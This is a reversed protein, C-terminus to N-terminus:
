CLCRSDIAHHRRTWLGNHEGNDVTNETHINDDIHLDRCCVTSWWSLRSFFVFCFLVDCWSLRCRGFETEVFLIARAFINELKHFVNKEDKTLTRKARLSILLSRVRRLSRADVSRSSPCLPQFVGSNGLSSRKEFCLTRLTKRLDWLLLGSLRAVVLTERRLIPERIFRTKKCKRVRSVFEPIDSLCLQNCVDISTICRPTYRRQSRWELRTSTLLRAEKILNVFADVQLM